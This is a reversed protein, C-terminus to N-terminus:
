HSTVLSHIPSPIAQFSGRALLLVYSSAEPSTGVNSAGEVGWFVCRIFDYILVDFIDYSLSRLVSNGEKKGKKKKM